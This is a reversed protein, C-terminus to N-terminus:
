DRPVLKMKFIVIGHCHYDSLKSKVLRFVLIGFGLIRVSGFVPRMIYNPTFYRKNKPDLLNNVRIYRWVRTMCQSLDIKERKRTGIIKALEPSVYFLDVKKPKKARKKVNEVEEETRVKRPRGRKKKPPNEGPLVEESRKGGNM